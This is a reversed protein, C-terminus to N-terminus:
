VVFHPDSKAGINGRRQAEYLFFPALTKKNKMKKIGSKKM